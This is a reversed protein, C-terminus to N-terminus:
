EGVVQKFSEIIACSDVGTLQAIDEELWKCTKEFWQKKKYEYYQQMMKNAQEYTPIGQSSLPWGKKGLYAAIHEESPNNDAWEAGAIFSPNINMKHIMDAFADGGIAMPYKSMQYNISAQEREEERKM